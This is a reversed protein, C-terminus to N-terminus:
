LKVIEEESLGAGKAIQAIPIGMDKFAKETELKSQYAGENRGRAEGRAEGLAISEERSEARGEARGKELGEAKGEALEEAHGEKRSKPNGCPAGKRHRCSTAKYSVACKSPRFIKKYLFVKQM